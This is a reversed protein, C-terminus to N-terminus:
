AALQVAGREYDYRSSCAFAALSPPAVPSELRRGALPADFAECEDMAGRALDLISMRGNPLHITGLKFLDVFGAVCAHIQSKSECDILGEILAQAAATAAADRLNAPQGSSQMSTNTADCLLRACLTGAFCQAGIREIEHGHPRIPASSSSLHTAVKRLQRAVADDPVSSAVQGLHHHAEGFRGTLSSKATCRIAEALAQHAATGPEVARRIRLLDILGHGHRQSTLAKVRSPSYEPKAKAVREHANGLTRLASSVYSM